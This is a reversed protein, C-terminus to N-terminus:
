PEGKTLYNGLRNVFWTWGQSHENYKESDDETFGSHGIIVKTKNKGLSEFRWTVSTNTSFESMNQFQWTYSIEKNPIFKVIKGNMEHAKDLTNNESKLFKFSVRGGERKELIAIDPFWNTLEDQDSEASCAKDILADVIIERNIVTYYDSM